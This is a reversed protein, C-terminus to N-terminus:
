WRGIIEDRWHVRECRGADTRGDSIWRACRPCVLLMKNLNSHSASDDHSLPARAPGSPSKPSRCAVEGEDGEDEEGTAIDRMAAANVVGDERGFHSTLSAKHGLALPRPPLRPPLCRSPRPTRNSAFIPPHLFRRCRSGRRRGLTMPRTVSQAGREQKQM